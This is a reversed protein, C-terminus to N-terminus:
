CSKNEQGVNDIEESQIFTYEERYAHNRNAATPSSRVHSQQEENSSPPLLPLSSPLPSKSFTYDTITKNICDKVLKNFLKEAEEIMVAINAETNYDPSSCQRQQQIHLGYTYSVTYDQDNSSYYDTISSM